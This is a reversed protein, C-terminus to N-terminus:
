AEANLHAVMESPPSDPSALRHTLLCRSRGEQLRFSAERLM